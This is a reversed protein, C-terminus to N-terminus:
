TKSYAVVLKEVKAAESDKGQRVLEDRKWRALEAVVQRLNRIHGRAECLRDADTEPYDPPDLPENM